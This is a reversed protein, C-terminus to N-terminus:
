WVDGDVSPDHPLSRVTARMCRRGLDRGRERTFVGGCLGYGYEICFACWCNPLRNFWACSSTGMRESQNYGVGGPIDWKPNYVLPGGATAASLEERFRRWRADLEPRDPNDPGLCYYWEHENTRSWPSHLDIFFVKMGKSQESILKKLARVSSYLGEVYDRNYCHPKRNKGQDGEECGDKDMFPIFLCRANESIWRGESTNSLAEEIFGEMVPNASVESCHHRATFVFLWEPRIGQRPEVTLMEVDRRGSQSKCLVDRVIRPNDPLSADFAGWEAENYPIGHAFRVEGADDPFAYDFFVGSAGGEPQLWHWSKGGDTSVAPGLPGIFEGKPNGFDFRLTRGAAGCVRFHFWFWEGRAPSSDPSIAVVGHAEDLDRVRINGGPFDCDIQIPRPM